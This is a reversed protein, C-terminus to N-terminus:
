NDSGTLNFSVGLYYGIDYVSTTPAVNGDSIYVDGIEYGQSLREVRGGMVGANLVIREGKGFMFSPGLFFSISQLNEGGGLPFGIGFSGAVTVNKRSPTYFHVFSTMVPVFADRDSSQLVSDRIFFSQPRAFFQGFNLGVSAKIRMGGYVNLSVPTLDVTKVGKQQLSDIPSLKIKFNLKEGDATLRYNKSFSNNHLELYTSRLVSLMKADIVPLEQSKAELMNVNEQYGQTKAQAVDLFDEAVSKFEDLNSEPFDFQNLEKLLLDCTATTTAYKDAKKRYDLITKPIETQADAIKLVQNLDIKNPDKELFIREMYEGTMQKIQSPELFPNYRIHDIEEIAFAQIRQSAVKKEIEEQMTKLDKDLTGLQEKSRSFDLELKELKAVQEIRKKEAESQTFGSGVELDEGSLTPFRFGGLNQDGGKFLFQLPSGGGLGGLMSLPNGTMVSAVPIEEKEVEIAVNYLYNNYNDVHLVIDDGKRLNPATVSKGNQTYYVSDRFVNYFVHLKQTKAQISCALLLGVLLTKATM